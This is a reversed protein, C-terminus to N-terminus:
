EVRTKENVYSIVQQVLKGRNEALDKASLSTLYEYYKRVKKLQYGFDDRKLNSLNHCNYFSRSLIVMTSGLRVHESLILKPDIVGSGFKAIGGFGYQIGKNKIKSLIYEVIGGSLLEFMFALGMGLHLDNLGIHIEDIGDVNLIDDIRTVAQPTEMLLSAKARGKVMLVFQEVEKKTKFMPLMIIDAGALIVDEIERKSENHIPNIRVQLKSFKVVEKIKRVDDLSHGSIVVDRAGQREVKGMIELDVMIREVSLYQARQALKPNNTIYIYEM